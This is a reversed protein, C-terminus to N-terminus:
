PPQASGINDKEPSTARGHRSIPAVTLSLKTSSLHTHDAHGALLLRRDDGAEQECSM